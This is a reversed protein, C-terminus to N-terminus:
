CVEGKELSVNSIIGSVLIDEDNIQSLNLNFGNITVAGIHTAIRVFFKEYELIGKFNEILLEDFGTITIKPSSSVVERPLELVENINKVFNKM